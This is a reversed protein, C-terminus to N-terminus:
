RAELNMAKIIPWWKEIEAMQFRALATPTLEEDEPVEQGLDSLRRAVAPDKLADVAAVNLKIIINEPTGKPAWMASWVSVHFRPLGAEDVTPIGPASALHGKATVAYAKSTATACM